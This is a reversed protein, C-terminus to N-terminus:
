GEVPTTSESPQVSASLDSPTEASSAEPINQTSTQSPIEAPSAEPPTPITSELQQSNEESSDAVNADLPYVQTSTGTSGDALSYDTTMEVPNEGTADYTIVTTIDHGNQQFSNQRSSLLVNDANYVYCTEERMMLTGFPDYAETKRYTNSGYSNNTIIDKLESGDREITVTSQSLITGFMDRTYTINITERSGDLSSIVTDESLPLQLVPDMITVTVMRTGDDFVSETTVAEIRGLEDYQYSSVPPQLPDNYYTIEAYVPHGVSFLGIFVLFILASLKTKM